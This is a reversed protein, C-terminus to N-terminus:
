RRGPAHGHFSRLSPKCCIAYHRPKQWSPQREGISTVIAPLAPGITARGVQCDSSRHREGLLPHFSNAMELGAGGGIVVADLSRLCASRTRGAHTLVPLRAPPPARRPLAVGGILLLAVLSEAAAITGAVSRVVAVEHGSAAIM